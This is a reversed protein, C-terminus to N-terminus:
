ETIMSDGAETIMPDSTETIMTSGTPSGGGGSGIIFFWLSIGFQLM